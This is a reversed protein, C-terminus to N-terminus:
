RTPTYGPRRVQVPAAPQVAPTPTEGLLAQYLAALQDYITSTEAVARGTTGRRIPSESHSSALAEGSLGIALVSAILLRSM